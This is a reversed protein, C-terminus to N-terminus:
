DLCTITQILERTGKKVLNNVTEFDSKDKKLKTELFLSNQIINEQEIEETTKAIPIDSNDIDSTSKEDKFIEKVIRSELKSNITLM